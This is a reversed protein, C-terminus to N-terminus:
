GRYCEAYPLSEFDVAMEKILEGWAPRPYGAIRRFERDDLIRNIAVTEDPVFTVDLGLADALRRLLDLKTIPESAVHYLGGLHTDNVLLERVLRSLSVTPLGSYWARSYGRLVSGRPQRLLWSFLSAFGTLEFGVISTRITLHRGYLLEGCAKSRGYADEADPRDAESYNGRDGRFVCDTSFTIVRGEKNPNLLPVLHPLSANLLFTRELHREPDQQKIVGVANVVVDPRLEELIRGLEETGTGLEVGVHFTAGLGALARHPDRRSTAHLELGPADALVQVLKHGLMGTGGLILVRQRPFPQTM